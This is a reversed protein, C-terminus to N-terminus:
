FPTFHDFRRRDEGRKRLAIVAAGDVASEAAAARADPTLDDRVVPGLLRQAARKAAARAGGAAARPVCGFFEYDRNTVIFHCARRIAPYGVDDLLVVGGADLMRDAYFFDVLTHDFTHWGDIFALQVRLGSAALRPLLVQSSEEHFEYRGQLGARRINELGGGQWVADHQAPDMGVLRGAGASEMADLIHLASVGFALGVEIATEPRVAAVAERVLRGTAADVASHLPVRTGDTLQTMRTRELEELVPNV